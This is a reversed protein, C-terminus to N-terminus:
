SFIASKNKLVMRRKDYKRQNKGTSISHIAQGSKDVVTVILQADDTGDVSSLVTKHTTLKLAAPVGNSPWAPPPIHLYDNRYCFWARKPLRFYDVLGM